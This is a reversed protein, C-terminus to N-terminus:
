DGRIASAKEVRCIGGLSDLGESLEMGQGGLCASIKAWLSLVVPDRKAIEDKSCCCFGM